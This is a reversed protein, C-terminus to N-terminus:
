ALYFDLYQQMVVDSAYQAAADFCAERMTKLRAPNSAIDQILSALEKRDGATFLFGTEGEKVIEPIGGIRSAIVPKGYAYAEAIVIGFSEPVTSPLVLIDCNEILKQKQQGYVAGHFHINPNSGYKQRLGNELYGWGAVDLEVECPSGATEMMVQCLSQIGKEPVLRGLYLFRLKKNFLNNKNLRLNCLEESGMGHSNPIVKRAATKFFGIEQHINLVYASPGTVRNVVVSSKARLDQYLRMILARQQALRGIRGQLLGEPSILEYDHCTHVIVPVGAAKAASWVSPSLGRLKHVHVLDPQEKKLLNKVVSYVWPNWLDILQWFIKKYIPQTEKELIWYLNQPYFRIIKINEKNEIVSHSVKASTIVLVEHGKASLCNALSHVVQSAGGGLSPEYLFTVFLIKM